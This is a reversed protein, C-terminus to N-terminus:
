QDETEQKTKVSNENILQDLVVRAGHLGSLEYRVSEELKNLEDKERGIRDLETTQEQFMTDIENKKYVLIEILENNTYTKDVTKLLSINDDM